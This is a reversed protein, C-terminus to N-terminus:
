LIISYKKALKENIPVGLKKFYEIKEYNSMLSIKGDEEMYGFPMDEIRGRRKQKQLLEQYPKWRDLIIEHSIVFPTEFFTQLNINQLVKRDNNEKNIKKLEKNFEFKEKKKDEIYKKVDPNSRGNLVDNLVCHEFISEMAEFFMENFFNADTGGDRRFTFKGDENVMPIREDLGFGVNLLYFERWRRTITEIDNYLCFEFFSPSSKFWKPLELNYFIVSGLSDEYLDQIREKGLVFDRVLNVAVESENLIPTINRFTEVIKRIQKIDDILWKNASGLTVYKKICGAKSLDKLHNKINKPEGIGFKDKLYVRLAPEDVMGSPNIGKASQKILYEIIAKKTERPKNHEGRKRPM